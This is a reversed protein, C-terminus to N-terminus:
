DPKGVTRPADFVEKLVFLWFRLKPLDHFHDKSFLVEVDYDMPHSFKGCFEAAADSILERDEATPETFTFARYLVRTPSQMQFSVCRMNRTIRAVLSHHAEALAEATEFAEM